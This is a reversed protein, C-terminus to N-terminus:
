IIIVHSTILVELNKRFKKFKESDDNWYYFQIASNGKLLFFSERSLMTVTSYDLQTVDLFIEKKKSKEKNLLSVKDKNLDSKNELM